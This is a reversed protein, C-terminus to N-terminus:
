RIGLGQKYAEENRRHQEARARAESGRYCSEREMYNWQNCMSYDPRITAPRIVQREVIVRPQNSQTPQQSGIAAGMGAGLIAGGTGGLQRGIAGGIVAGAMENSQQHTACGSLAVLVLTTYVIKRM